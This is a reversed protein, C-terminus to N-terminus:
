AARASRERVVSVLLLLGSVVILSKELTVPHWHSTIVMLEAPLLVLVLGLGLTLSIALAVNTLRLHAVCSWGLVFFAFLLGTVFRVPSTMHGFATVAFVIDVLLAVCSAYFRPNM